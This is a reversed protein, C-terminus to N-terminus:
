VIELTVKKIKKNKLMNWVEDHPDLSNSVSHDHRIDLLAQEPHPILSILVLQDYKSIVCVGAPHGGRRQQVIFRNSPCVLKPIDAHHTSAVMTRGVQLFLPPTQLPYPPGKSIPLCRM